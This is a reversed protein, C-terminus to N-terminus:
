LIDGAPRNDLRVGSILVPRRSEHNRTDVTYAFYMNATAAIAKM